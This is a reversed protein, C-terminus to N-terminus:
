RIMIEGYALSHMHEMSLIDLIKMKSVVDLRTFSVGRM